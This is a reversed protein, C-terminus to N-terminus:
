RKLSPLAVMLFRSPPLPALRASIVESPMGTGWPKVMVVSVHLIGTVEGAAMRCLEPLPTVRYRLESEMFQLIHLFQYLLKEEKRKGAAVSFGCSSCGAIILIAGIWRYSM